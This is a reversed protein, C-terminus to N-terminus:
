ISVKFFFYYDSYHVLLGYEQVSPPVHTNKHELTCKTKIMKTKTILDNLEFHRLSNSSLGAEKRKKELSKLIQRSAFKIM